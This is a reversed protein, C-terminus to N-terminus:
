RETYWPKKKYTRRIEIEDDPMIVIGVRPKIVIGVHPKIYWPVKKGPEGIISKDLGVTVSIGIVKLRVAISHINDIFKPGMTDQLYKMCFRHWGHKPANVEIHFGQHMSCYEIQRCFSDYFGDCQKQDEVDGPFWCVAICEKYGRCEPMYTLTYKEQHSSLWISIDEALTRIRDLVEDPTLKLGWTHNTNYVLSDDGVAYEIDKGSIRVEIKTICIQNRDNFVFYPLLSNIKKLDCAGSFSLKFKNIIENIEPNHGHNIMDSFNTVINKM